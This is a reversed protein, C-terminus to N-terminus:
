KPSDISCLGQELFGQIPLYAITNYAKIQFFQFVLLVTCIKFYYKEHKHDGSHRPYYVLFAFTKSNLKLFQHMCM